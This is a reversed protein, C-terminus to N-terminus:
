CDEVYQQLWGEYCVATNRENLECKSVNINEVYFIYLRETFM